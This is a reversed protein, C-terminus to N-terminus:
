DVVGIFHVFRKNYKFVVSMGMTNWILISFHRWVIAYHSLLAAPGERIVVRSLFPIKRLNFFHSIHIVSMKVKCLCQSQM